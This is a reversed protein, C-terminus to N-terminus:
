KRKKLITLSIVFFAGAMVLSLVLRLWFDLSDIQKTIIPIIVGSSFWAVSINGFIESIRDLQKVSLKKM